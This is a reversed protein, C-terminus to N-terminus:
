LMVLLNLIYFNLKKKGKEACIKTKNVCFKVSYNLIIFNITM